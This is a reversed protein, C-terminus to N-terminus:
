LAIHPRIFISGLFGKKMELEVLKGNKYRYYYMIGEKMEAEYTGPGTKKLTRNEGLRESFVTTNNCPEDFFLKVTSCDVPGPICSSINDLKMVYSSGQWTITTIHMEDNRVHKSYSNYLKDHRYTMDYLLSIKRTTFFVHAESNSALTYQTVSDNKAIREVVTQGIKNGFLFIDFTLKQAGSAVSV